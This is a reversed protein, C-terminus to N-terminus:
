KKLKSKIIILFSISGMGKYVVGKGITFTWNSGFTYSIDLSSNSMDYLANNNTIQKYKLNSQGIGIKKWIIYISTNNLNRNNKTNQSFLYRLRLNWPERPEKYGRRENALKILNKRNSKSADSCFVDRCRM